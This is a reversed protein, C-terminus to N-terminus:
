EKTCNKRICVAKKFSHILRVLFFILGALYLCLLLESYGTFNGTGTEYNASEPIGMKKNNGSFYTLAQDLYLTTHFTILPIIFSIFFSGALYFRNFVFHKSKRFLFHYTCYFVFIGVSVKLLYYLIDEM